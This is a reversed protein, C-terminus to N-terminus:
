LYYNYLTSTTTLLSLIISIEESGPISLMGFVPLKGPKFTLLVSLIAVSVSLVFDIWKKNKWWEGM